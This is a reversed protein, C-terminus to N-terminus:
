KLTALYQSYTDSMLSLIADYNDDEAARNNHPQHCKDCKYHIVIGKKATNTAGVPLLLGLCTNARDGPNIDIHISTLCHPCHDRSTYGLPPVTAGCMKCVFGNDNKSFKAQM